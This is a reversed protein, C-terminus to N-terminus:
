GVKRKREELWQEIKAKLEHEDIVDGGHVDILKRNFPDHPDNLLHAKLTTRDLVVNSTRLRVPSHMLTYTLPDIFEDPIEESEAESFAISANKSRVTKVAQDIALLTPAISQHNPNGSSTEMIRAMRPLLDETWSRADRAMGRVFERQKKAMNVIICAMDFLLERPRFHYLSAADRVRLDRCRPGTLTAINLLLMGSLRDGFEPSVFSATIATTLYALMSLSESALQMCSKCIREVRQLEANSNDTQLTSTTNAATPGAAANNANTTTANATALNEAASSTQLRHIEALKTM